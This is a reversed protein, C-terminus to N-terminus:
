AVEDHEILALRWYHLCQQYDAKSRQQCTTNLTVGNNVRWFSDWRLFCELLALTGFSKRAGKGKDPV